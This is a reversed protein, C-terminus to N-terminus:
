RDVKLQTKNGCSRLSETKGISRLQNTKFSHLLYVISFPFTKTKNAPEECNYWHFGNVDFLLEIVSLRSFSFLCNAGMLFGSTGWRILDFMVCCLVDIVVQFSNIEKLNLM